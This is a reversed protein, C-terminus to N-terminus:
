AVVLFNASLIAGLLDGLPDRAFEAAVTTKLKQPVLAKEDNLVGYCAVRCWDRHDAARFLTTHRQLHGHVGGRAGRHM